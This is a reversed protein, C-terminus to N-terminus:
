ILHLPKISHPHSFLLWILPHCLWIHLNSQRLLLLYFNVGFMTLPPYLSSSDLMIMPLNGWFSDQIVLNQFHLKLVTRWVRHTPQQRLHDLCHRRPVLLRTITLTIDLPTQPTSKLFDHTSVPYSQKVLQSSTCYINAGISIDATTISSQPIGGSARTKAKSVSQSSLSPLPIEVIDGSSATFSLKKHVFMKDVAFGFPREINPIEIAIGDHKEIPASTRFIISGSPNSKSQPLIKEVFGIHLGRPGSFDRDIVNKNKGNFHLTTYPRAFIRRINDLCGTTDRGDLIRRYYDTTSAVYLPTKKRGEIKLSAVGISALKTVYDGLSLDKMAYPHTGAYLKRCPYTCKGRNASEGCALSSYMCLGSYSYCLAGHIFVEVEIGCNRTIDEIESFSLERALVVRSFGMDRLQIAGDLNHVAM